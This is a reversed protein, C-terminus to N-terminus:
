IRTFDHYILLAERVGGTGAETSKLAAHLEVRPEQVLVRAAFRRSM